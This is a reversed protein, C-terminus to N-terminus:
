WSASPSSASASGSCPRSSCCVASSRSSASPSTTRASRRTTPSGRTTRRASCRPTSFAPPGPAEPEGPAGVDDHAVPEAEGQHHLQTDFPGPRPGRLGIAYLSSALSTLGLFLFCGRWTLDFPGTLLSVVLPAVVQGLVVFSQYISLARVRAAPPYANTVFPPHLALVSGTSLGDFVLVALLAILSTVFGTTLTIVSWIVGTTVCLLAMRGRKQALAAMPLPSLIQALFALTRAAGIAGLGLGMSRSVEPTLINFADAQFRDVVGLLGLATLPYVTLGYQKLVPGLPASEQKGTVGLTQRAAARREERASPPADLATPADLLETM